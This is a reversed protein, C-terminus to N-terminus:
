TEGNFNYICKEDEGSKSCTEGMEDKRNIDGEYYQTFM